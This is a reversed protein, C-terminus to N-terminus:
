RSLRLARRGHPRMRPSQGRRRPRASEGPTNEVVPLLRAAGPTSWATIVPIRMKWSLLLGTLGSGVSVAWIWSTTLEDSLGALHAAQFILVASGAYSVIVALFGAIVATISFDSQLQSM